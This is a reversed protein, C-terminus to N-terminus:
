KEQEVDGIRHGPAHVTVTVWRRQTADYVQVVPALHAVAHTMAVYLWIPGRGTLRIKRVNTLKNLERFAYDVAPALEEPSINASPTLTFEIYAIDNHQIIKLWSPQEM